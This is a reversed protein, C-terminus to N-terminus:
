DRLARRVAEAAADSDTGTYAPRIEGPRMVDYLGDDTKVVSVSRGNGTIVANEGGDYKTVNVTRGPVIEDKM